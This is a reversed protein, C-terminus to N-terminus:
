ACVCVCRSSWPLLTRTRDLQSECRVSVYCVCVRCMRVCLCSCVCVGAQRPCCRGQEAESHRAGHVEHVNQANQPQTDRRRQGGSPPTPHRPTTHHSTPISHHSTPISHHLTYNLNHLIFHPTTHHPTIAHSVTCNSTSPTLQLKHYNHHLAHPFTLVFVFVCVCV